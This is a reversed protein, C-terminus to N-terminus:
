SCAVCAVQWAFKGTGLVLSPTALALYNPLPRSSILLGHFIVEHYTM